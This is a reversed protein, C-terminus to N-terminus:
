PNEQTHWRTGTGDGTVYYYSRSRFQNLIARFQGLIVVTDSITPLSVDDLLELFEVNPDTSLFDKVQMLIKNIMKVKLPSVVDEPKKKSLDKIESYISDLLPSLRHFKDVSEESPLNSKIKKVM